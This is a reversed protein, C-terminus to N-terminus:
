CGQAGTDGKDGKFLVARQRILTDIDILAQKKWANWTDVSISLDDGTQPDNTVILITPSLLNAIELLKLAKSPIYTGDRQNSISSSVGGSSGSVSTGENFVGNKIAYDVMIALANIVLRQQQANLASFEAYNTLRGGTAGILSSNASLLASPLLEDNEEITIGFDTKIKLLFAKQQKEFTNFDPKTQDYILLM